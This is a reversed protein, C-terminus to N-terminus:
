DRTDAYEFEFGVILWGLGVAFGKVPRSLPTPNVGLFATIDAFAPAPALVVALAVLIRKM